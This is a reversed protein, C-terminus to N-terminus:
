IRKHRSEYLLGIQEFVHGTRGRGDPRSTPNLMSMKMDMIAKGTHGRFM